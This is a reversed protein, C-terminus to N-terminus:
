SAEAATTTESGLDKNEEVYKSAIFTAGQPDALVTMRVWPADFPPAIVKGGLEKAKAATADADDTAFTVSWQPPTDSDDEAIPNIAAVVDEFGEPGGAEAVQKRIDPHISELHDGYGPLTWFQAGIDLTTWGFVSGYFKKAGEVDRTNLNNFNLTGPDNVLEAGKHEKAEWVCLAAGEPDTFVAMRGSNMVDFPETVITGGADRVKDATEDASDVWIYTNWMATPPAGDPISGVAAVRLGDIRAIFYKMESGAPMVNELEWGFLGGYFDVAAEPDPQTTDAYCPVGPIYGDREPM